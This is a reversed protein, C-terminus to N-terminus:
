KVIWTKFLLDGDGQTLGNVLCSWWWDVGQCRSGPATSASTAGIQWNDQDPCGEVSLRIVYTIGQDVPGPGGDRVDVWWATRVSMRPWAM